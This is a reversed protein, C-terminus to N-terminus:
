GLIENPRTYTYALPEWFQIAVSGNSFCYKIQHFRMIEIQFRIVSFM